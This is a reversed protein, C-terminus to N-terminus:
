PLWKQSESSCPKTASAADPSGGECLYASCLATHVTHKKKDSSCFGSYPLPFWPPLLVVLYCVCVKECLSLICVRLGRNALDDMLVLPKLFSKDCAAIFIYTVTFHVAYM